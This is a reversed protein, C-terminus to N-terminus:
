CFVVSWQGRVLRHLAFLNGTGVGVFSTCMRAAGQTGLVDALGDHEFAPDVGATVEAADDEDVQAVALAQHLHHVIRVKGLDEAGSLLHAAFEHQPDFAPHTPTRFAGLVGLQGGALDFDQSLLQLHQVLGLRRGKRQVLVDLVDGLVHAQAM